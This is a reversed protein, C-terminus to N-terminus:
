KEIRAQNNGMYHLISFGVMILLVSDKQYFQPSSFSLPLMSILVATIGVTIAQRRRDSLKNISKIAYYIKNLYFYMFFIFGFIGVKFIIYLFANHSYWTPMERPLISYFDYEYGLGYGIFINEKILAIIAKAEQIRGIISIDKIGAHMSSFRNLISIGIKNWLNGFFVQSLVLVISFILMFNLILKRRIVKDTFIFIIVIGLIAAIWYGRSFTIILAVSFITILLFYLLKIKWKNEYLLLSTGVVIPFLFMPENATQRSSAVQWFMQAASILDRYKLMNKVAIFLGLIVVALLLYTADKEKKIQERLPFYLLIPVFTFLERAWKMSSSSFYVSPVISFICCIFFLFLSIDSANFIFSNKKFMLVDLLWKLLLFIVYLGTIIELPTIKESGTIIFYHLLILVLYANITKKFLLFCSFLILLGLSILLYYEKCLFVLGINICLFISIKLAIENLKM